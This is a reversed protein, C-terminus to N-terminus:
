TLLVDEVGEDVVWLYNDTCGEVVRPEFGQAGHGRDQGIVELLEHPHDVGFLVEEVVGQTVVIQRVHLRCVPHQEVGVLGLDLLDELFVCVVRWVCWM